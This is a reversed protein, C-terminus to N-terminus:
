ALNMGGKPRQEKPLREFYIRLNDRALEMKKTLGEWDQTKITERLQGTTLLTFAVSMIVNDIPQHFPFPNVDPTPHDVLFFMGIPMGATRMCKKINDMDSKSLSLTHDQKSSLSGFQFDCHNETKLHDRSERDIASFETLLRPIIVAKNKADYYPPSVPQINLENKIPDYFKRFGNKFEEAMLQVHNKGTQPVSQAPLVISGEPPKEQQGLLKVSTMFVATAPALIDGLFKRRTDNAM